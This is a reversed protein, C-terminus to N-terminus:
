GGSIAPYIEVVEGDPPVRDRELLVGDKVFGMIADEPIATRRLIDILTDGEEAPCEIREAMGVYRKLNAKPELFIRKM